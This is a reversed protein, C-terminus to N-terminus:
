FHANYDNIYIKDCSTGTDIIYFRGGEDTGSSMIENGGKVANMQEKSLSKFNKM